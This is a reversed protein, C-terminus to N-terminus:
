ADSPLSHDYKKSPNLRKSKRALHIEAGILTEGFLAFRELEHRDDAIEAAAIVDRGADHIGFPVDAPHETQGMEVAELAGFLREQRGTTSAASRKPLPTM